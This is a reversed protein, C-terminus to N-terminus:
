GAYVYADLGRASLAADVDTALFRQADESGRLVADFHALTLGCVARHADGGSVLEAVPRMERQMWALEPPFAMARVAEHQTEVDDVFHLHDARRLVVMRKTGPVRGYVDIMGALPLSVDDEAAILLTPVDRTWAFRLVLPLIGPRVASAGGPALAVVARIEPADDVSALATWGGLSHGVIGAAAGDITVNGEDLAGDRLASRLVFRVDPVRNAIVGAIRADRREPPENARRALEPAVVESHDIAAVAYGRAALHTCLYTAARRTGGSFHSYLVLPLPGDANAPRWVECPFTRRRERDELTVTREVVVHTGRAFPDYADGASATM